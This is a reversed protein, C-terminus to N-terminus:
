RRHSGGSGRAPQQMAIHQPPQMAFHQPPQVAFRQGSRHRDFHRFNQPRVVFVSTPFFGPSWWSGCQFWAPDCWTSAPPAMDGGYQMPQQQVPQPAPIAAYVIPPPVQVRAVEAERELQRVRESLIQMELQRARESLAQMEAQRAAERAPSPPSEHMVSTLRVGEPPALNSINVSGSKDVWTYIDAHARQLGFTCALLLPLFARIFRILMTTIRHCDNGNYATVGVNLLATELPTCRRTSVGRYPRVGSHWSQYQSSSTAASHRTIGIDAPHVRGM